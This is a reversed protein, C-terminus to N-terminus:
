IASSAPGRILCRARPDGDQGPNSGSVPYTLASQEILDGFSSASPPSGYTKRGRRLSPAKVASFDIVLEAPPHARLPHRPM